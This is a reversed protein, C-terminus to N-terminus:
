VRKASAPTQHIEETWGGPRDFLIPPHTGSKAPADGTVSTSRRALIRSSKAEPTRGVSGGGITRGAGVDIGPFAFDFTRM